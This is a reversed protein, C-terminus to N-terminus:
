LGLRFRVAVTFSWYHPLGKRLNSGAELAAGEVVTLPLVGSVETHSIGSVVYFAYHYAFEGTVAINPHVMAGGGVRLPAVLGHFDVRTPGSATEYRNRWLQYSIGAGAYAIGRGKRIFHIRLAPGVSVARSKSANDAITLKTFDVEIIDTGLREAIVQQLTAPNLGYLELANRGAVAGPRLTGWQAEIGVDLLGLLNGGIFGGLLAGPKADHKSSGACFDRTCGFVGFRPELIMGAHRWKKPDKRRARAEEEEIEERTKVPEAPKEEAIPDAGGIM